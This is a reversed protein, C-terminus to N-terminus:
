GAGGGNGRNEGEPVSFVDIFDADSRTLEGTDRLPENYLAFFHFALLSYFISNASKSVVVFYVRAWETGENHWGHITGRQVIIDGAKLIRRENNDLYLTISGHTVIGFDVTLTRHFPQMYRFCGLCVPGSGSHIHHFYVTLPSFFKFLSHIQLSFESVYLNTGLHPTWWRARLGVLENAHLKTKDDFQTGEGEDGSGNKDSLDPKSEDSWFVDHFPVRGNKFFYPIMPADVLVTSDGKFTHGTVIRRIPPLPLPGAQGAPVTSSSDNNNAPSSSM